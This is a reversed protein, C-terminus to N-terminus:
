QEAMRQFSYRNGMSVQANEAGIQPGAGSDIQLYHIIIRGFLVPCHRLSGVYNHQKILRRQGLRHQNRFNYGSIKNDECIVSIEEERKNTPGTIQGTIEYERVTKYKMLVWYEQICELAYGMCM